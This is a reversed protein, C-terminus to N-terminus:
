GADLRAPDQPETWPEDDPEDVDTDFTPRSREERAPDFRGVVVQAPRVIRSGWRFGSREVALVRRDLNESEVTSMGTANHVAPDFAAGDCDIEELGRRRFTELLEDVVSHLMPHDEAERELRDCVVLVERVVPLLFQETLGRRAFELQNYLEDFAKAKQKDEILRREILSQIADLQDRLSEATVREAPRAEPAM